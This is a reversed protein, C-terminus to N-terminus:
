CVPLGLNLGWCWVIWAQGSHVPSGLVQSLHLTPSKPLELDDEGVYNSSLTPNLLYQPTSFFSPLLPSFSHLSSPCLPSHSELHSDFSFLFSSIFFFFFLRHPGLQRPGLENWFGSLVCVGWQGLMRLLSQGHGGERTVGGTIHPLRTNSCLASQSAAM